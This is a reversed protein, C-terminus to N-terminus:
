LWSVLTLTTWSAPRAVTAAQWDVFRVVPYPSAIMVHTELAIALRGSIGVVVGAGVGAVASWRGDRQGLYPGTGQADSGLHLVGAELMIAPALRHDRRFVLGLEVVGLEQTIVATGRATEIRPRSGLGAITLRAVIPGAVAVRLRALPVAAADLEGPSALLSVGGELAVVRPRPAPAEASRVPAVEAPPPAPRSSEIFLKLASARLVEITRIALVEEVREPDDSPAPIRRVEANAGIRDLIWLEARGLEPDGLLAITAAASSQARMVAALSFPDTAPGPDVTEVDFGGATLEDRIMTLCRRTGPSATPSELVVVRASAAWGPGPRAVAVALVLGASVLAGARRGRRGVNM